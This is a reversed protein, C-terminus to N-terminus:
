HIPWYAFLSQLALIRKFPWMKAWPGGTWSTQCLQKTMIVKNIKGEQGLLHGWPTRITHCQGPQALWVLSHHGEISVGFVGGESLGKLLGERVAVNLAKNSLLVHYTNCFVSMLVWKYFLTLSPECQESGYDAGFQDLRNSNMRCCLLGLRESSGTVQLQKIM